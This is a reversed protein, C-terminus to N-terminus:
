AHDLPTDQSARYATITAPPGARSGARADRARRRGGQLARFRLRESVGASSADPDLGALRESRVFQLDSPRRRSRKQM